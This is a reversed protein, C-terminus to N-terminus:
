DISFGQREYYIPLWVNPDNGVEARIQRYLEVKDTTGSLVSMEKEFGKLDLECVVSQNGQKVLFRRSGEGMGEKVLDFEARSLSLGDMYDVERAKPNPMLILTANQELLTAAIPSSLADQPSQSDYVMLGNQKRITKNKNKALDEFAEDALAKWFEAIYCTFRRGDIMQEMRYFLYMIIPTRTEPNDLFETLDFGFIRGKTFDLVDVENDFVWGLSGGQGWKKLRAGVGEPDTRDLFSQLQGIRRRQESLGYVGKVANEINTNETVTLPKDPIAMTALKKVLTTVFLLNEPTPPLSFINFGTPQGNKLPLYTGGLANIIIEEGRDKDFVFTTAAYKECQAKIFAVLLTKGSGSPGLVMTNALVKQSSDQTADDPDAARRNDLPLHYNLYYPAGSSTKLLTIAPGWQNGNRRGTPYNHLPAFGCFNLSTIPAPRPRLSFVGPQMAWYAAEMASDERVAIGGNPTLAEYCDSIARNLAKNDPALLTLGLYHEGMVFRGSILDDLANELDQIQSEALDGANIMKNITRTLLNEATTKSLFTFSQSLIFRHPVTLLMNLLGPATEPMYEKLTLIAGVKSSKAGRLEFAETSFFPRVRGIVSKITQRGLPIPAWEGNVLYALFEQPESYMVKNREYVALRRPEYRSLGRLVREAIDNISALAEARAERLGDTGRKAFVTNLFGGAGKTPRFVITLYLSNVLMTGNTVHARYKENLQRAFGPPMDGKPFERQEERITHTWLAVQPGAINCYTTNLANHWSDLDEPDASEHAIGEIKFIQLFDGATTTVTHADIQAEYPIRTELPKERSMIATHPTRVVSKDKPKTKLKNLV